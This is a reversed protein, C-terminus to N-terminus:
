SLGAESSVQPRAEDQQRNLQRVLFFWYVPAFVLYAHLSFLVYGVVILPRARLKGTVGNRFVEGESFVEVYPMYNNFPGIAGGCNECFWGRSPYPTFCRHCVPIADSEQLSHEIELSWPDPTVPSDRVWVVFRYILFGGAVIALWLMLLDIQEPEIPSAM